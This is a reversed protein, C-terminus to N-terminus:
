KGVKQTRQLCASWAEQVRLVLGAMHRIHSTSYADAEVADQLADNLASLDWETFEMTIPGHYPCPVLECCVAIATEGRMDTRYEEHGCEM